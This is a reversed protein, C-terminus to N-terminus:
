DKLLCIKFTTGEDPESEVEIKGRHSEVIAKVIPLGLGSGPVSGRSKDVRYFREFIKDKEDEHLGIGNDSVSVCVYDEISNVAIDVKGGQRNYKVANEIINVFVESVRERDALIHLEDLDCLTLTVGQEHAFPEILAVAERLVDMLNLKVVKLHFIKSEFRSVEIIREIIATMKTSTKMITGLADRYEDESRDRRLTIDCHSKIVATPTRLEHSADSLFERQRTFAKELRSLMTNFSKAIPVLEADIDKEGVRENLSRATILGIKNSFIGLPLLAYRTIYYLGAISILFLIPLAILIMNRFSRLVYYSPELSDAAQFTLDLEEGVVDFTFTQSVSRHPIDSLPGKINIHIVDKSIPPIPLSVDGLTLSPSRGLVKGTTDVIQYYHGSLSVAYEGSAAETIEYLGEEVHGHEVEKALIGALLTIESYLHDDVSGVVIEKLEYHLFLGLAVFVLTFVALFWTILKLKISGFM